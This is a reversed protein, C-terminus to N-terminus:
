KIAVLFAANYVRDGFWGNVRRAQGFAREQVIDEFLQAATLPGWGDVEAIAVQCGDFGLGNAFM